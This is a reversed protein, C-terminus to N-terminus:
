AAKAVDEQALEVARTTFADQMLQIMDGKGAEALASGLAEAFEASQGDDLAAISATLSRVPNVMAEQPAEVAEPEDGDSEAKTQNNGASPTKSVKGADAVKRPGYDRARLDAALNTAMAIYTLPKGTEDDIAAAHEAVIDACEGTSLVVAGKVYRQWTDRALGAQELTDTLQKNWKKSLKVGRAVANHTEIMAAAIVEMSATTITNARSKVFSKFSTQTMDKSGRPNSGSGNRNFSLACKGGSHLGQGTLAAM